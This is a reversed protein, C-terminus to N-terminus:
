VCTWSKLKKPKLAFRGFVGFCVAICAGSGASIVSFSDLGQVLRCVVQLHHCYKSQQQWGRRWNDAASSCSDASYCMQKYLLNLINTHAAFEKPTYVIHKQLPGTDNSYDLSTTHYVSDCASLVVYVRSHPIANPTLDRPHDTWVAKGTACVCTAVHKVSSGLPLCPWPANKILGRWCCAPM